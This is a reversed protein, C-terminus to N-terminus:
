YKFDVSRNEDIAHYTLSLKRGVKRRVEYTCVIREEVGREEREVLGKYWGEEKRM